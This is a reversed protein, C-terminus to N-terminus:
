LRGDFGRVTYGHSTGRMPAHSKGNTQASQEEEDIQSQLLLVLGNHSGHIDTGDCYPVSASAVPWAYRVPTIYAVIQPESHM